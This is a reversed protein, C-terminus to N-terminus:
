VVAQQRQVKPPNGKVHATFYRAQGLRGGRVLNAAFRWVDLWYHKPWAAARLGFYLNFGDICAAVRRDRIGNETQSHSANSDTM